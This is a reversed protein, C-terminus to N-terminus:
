NQDQEHEQPLGPKRAGFVGVLIPVLLSIGGAILWENLALATTGFVASLFPLYIIGLLMLVSSLVALILYKNSLVPLEFLSKHESKCEFVHILQSMVLTVLAATRAAALNKSMANVIMFSAIASVAIFVGRVLIMRALGFSFISEDPSRPPREMTDPDGPEMGLAIAPLGDTALNVALVQAPLLPIPLGMLMTLFMTLVEGVNCSLLYRIFKRINSYINRGEEVAAVISSFNDDMLIMSAAHRTVDTGSKGMAIGIDADKVAPADNVGDGTMAVINGNNRIARVIRLKHKPYVRAFVTAKRCVEELERDSMRDIEGGSLVLDGERYIDLAKAIAEATKIHDGTIM